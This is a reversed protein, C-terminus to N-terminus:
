TRRLCKQCKYDKKPVAMSVSYPKTCNTCEVIKTKKHFDPRNYHPKRPLISNLQKHLDLHCSSCVLEVNYMTNSGGDALPIIHHIHLNKISKCYICENGLYHRILETWIKSGESKNKNMFFVSEGSSFLTDVDITSASV